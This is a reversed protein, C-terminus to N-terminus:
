SYDMSEYVKPLGKQQAALPCDAGAIPAGGRCMQYGGGSAELLERRRSRTALPDLHAPLSRHTLRV